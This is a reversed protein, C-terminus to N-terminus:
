CMAPIQGSIPHGLIVVDVDRHNGTILLDNGIFLEPKVLGKKIFLEKTSPQFKFVIAAEQVSVDSFAFLPSCILIFMFQKMM